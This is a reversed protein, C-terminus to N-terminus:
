AASIKRGGDSERYAYGDRDRSGEGPQVPAGDQRLQGARGAWEAPVPPFSLLLLLPLVVPLFLAVALLLVLVAM